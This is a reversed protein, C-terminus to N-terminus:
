ITVLFVKKATITQKIEAIIDNSVPTKTKIALLSYKKEQDQPSRIGDINIGHKGLISTVEGIVCPM